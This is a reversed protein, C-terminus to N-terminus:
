EDLVMRGAVASRVCEALSGLTVDIGLNAPAYHAWKGSNTMATRTGAPLISTVYTCTDLVFVGGAAEIQRVYGAQEALRHVGRGTSLYLRCGDAVRKGALAEALARVEALSAHPTGLSVVDLADTRATCLDRRAARLDEETLVVAPIGPDAVAALTPAEPTRGVAHFLAVSGSSAATSGLTKLQDESADGPLGVVAPVQDGSRLGVLYGVLAYGLESAFWRPPVARVDVVLQARRNTDLHLGAAPAKGTVAACIDLFDGYRDTRAGLVSNAFVIANSEAWAVHEGVAPRADVQYPACTFTPRAGIALYAQMLERGATKIDPYREADDRILGPHVLDLSGVNLTTPVAVRGGLDLLRHVFDLGARGHYLCSDIHAQTVDLLREAGRVRALGVVIRMAMAVAPGQGGDLMEQETRTLELTM